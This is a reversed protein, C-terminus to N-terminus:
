ASMERLADNVEVICCKESEKKIEYNLGETM